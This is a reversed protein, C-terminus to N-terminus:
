TIRQKTTEGPKRFCQKHITLLLILDEIDQETNISVNISLQDLIYGDFKNKLQVINKATAVSEELSIGKGNAELGIKNKHNRYISGAVSNLPPAAQILDNINKLSKIYMAHIQEDFKKKLAKEGEDDYHPIPFEFVPKQGQLNPKFLLPTNQSKLPYELKKINRNQYYEEPIKYEPRPNKSRRDKLYRLFEADGMTNRLHNHIQKLNSFLTGKYDSYQETEIDAIQQKIESPLPYEVDMYAFWAKTESEKAAIMQQIYLIAHNDKNILNKLFSLYEEDGDHYMYWRIRDFVKIGEYETKSPVVAIAQSEIAKIQKNLRYKKFFM